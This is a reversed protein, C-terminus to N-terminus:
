QLAGARRQDTAVAAAAVAATADPVGRRVAEVCLAPSGTVAAIPAPIVLGIPGGGATAAAAAVGGAQVPLGGGGGWGCSGDVVRM